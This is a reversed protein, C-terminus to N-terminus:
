ADRDDGSAGLQLLLGELVLAARHEAGALLPALQAAEGGTLFLRASGGLQELAQRVLGAQAQRSGAAVADATNRGPAAQGAPAGPEAARHRAIDATRQELAATMLRTGPVIYGGLHQGGADVLDVTLATGADVVCCASRCRSWAALMALWRDVGLLRHDAYANRLGLREPESVAFVPRLSWHQECFSCLAADLRQGAVSSVLVREPAEPLQGLGEFSAAEPPASIPAGVRGQEARAWKIRSNGIDILLIV